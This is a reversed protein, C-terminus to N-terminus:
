HPTHNPRPQGLAREAGREAVREAGRPALDGLREALLRATFRQAESSREMELAVADLTQELRALREETAAAVRADAAGTAGRQVQRLKVVTWAVIATITVGSCAAVGLALVKAEYPSM